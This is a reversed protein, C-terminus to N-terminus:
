EGKLEKRQIWRVDDPTLLLVDIPGGVSKPRAQFRMTDTTTRVLYIAFDVADQATMAPFMVPTPPIIKGPVKPDPLPANLLRSVVDTEGSWTCGYDLDKTGKKVNVRKKENRGVHCAFVYPTSTKGEKKFGTIHITTNAKPFSERFFELIKDAVTTVDDNKTVKEELFRKIHSETTIGGLMTDGAFSIGTRQEELLFTKYVSDSGITDIPPLDKGGRKIGVKVSQRSDSAMVIAEPIYVAVIYSM